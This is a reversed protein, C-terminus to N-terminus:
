VVLPNTCVRQLTKTRSSYIIVTARQLVEKPARRDLYALAPWQSNEALLQSGSVLLSDVHKLYSLFSFNWMPFARLSFNGSSSRPHIIVYECLVSLVFSFHLPVKFPQVFNSWDKQRQPLRFLQHSQLGLQKPEVIVVHKDLRSSDWSAALAGTDRLPYRWARSANLEKISAVCSVNQWGFM